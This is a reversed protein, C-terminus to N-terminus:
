KRDRGGQVAGASTKSFPNGRRDYVNLTEVRRHGTVSMTDADAVGRARAETVHGARLSHGSYQEPDLGAKLCASKLILAVSQASLADPQVSGSRHLGRFVPGKKIGSATLWARLATAACLRGSVFPIPKTMGAGRQDTKSRPVTIVVGQESWALNEADLAVLESRRFAGAFGLLLIARNRIGELHDSGLTAVMREVADLTAPAKAKVANGATREIGKMTAPVPEAGCPNAHGSMKHAKGIAALCRRLTAPRVERARAAIFAAVVEPRAPLPTQGHQKCWGTFAEWDARYARQTSEPVSATVYSKAEEVARHLDISTSPPPAKALKSM